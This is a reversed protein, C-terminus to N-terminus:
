LLKSINSVGIPEVSLYPEAYNCGILSGFYNDRALKQELFGPRYLRTEPGDKASSEGSIFVQSKYAKISEQKTEIVDTIDVFFSPKVPFDYSQMSCFIKRVRHRDQKNGDWTTEVKGLGAKFNADRVIKNVAEHDPHREFPPHTIIAKPKYYRIYPIIKYQNEINNEISGDTMDLFFRKEVGLIAAANLAEKQRIEKTGRTGMEGSTCDILVVTGGNQTIKAIAGGSCLESDDPHAGIVLLDINM